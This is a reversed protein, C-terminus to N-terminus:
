MGELLDSIPNPGFVGFALQLVLLFVTWFVIVGMVDSADVRSRELSTKLVGREVWRDFGVRELLTDVLKSLAKAIFWGIILILLFGVLKPVFTAIRTWADQVGQQYDVSAIM